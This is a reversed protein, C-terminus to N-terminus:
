ASVAQAARLATIEAQMAELQLEQPSKVRFASRLMDPVSPLTDRGEHVKFRFHLKTLQGGPDREGEVTLTDTSKDTRLFTFLGPEALNFLEIEEATTTDLDLPHGVWTMPCKFARPRARDGEPYSFVSIAPHTKNSPNAAHEMAAAQTAAVKNLIQELRADTIGGGSVQLKLLAQVQEQLAAVQTALDEGTTEDDDDRKKAYTKPDAIAM